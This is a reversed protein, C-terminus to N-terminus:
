RAVLRDPRQDNKLQPVSSENRLRSRRVSLFCPLYPPRPTWVPGPYDTKSRAQETLAYIGANVFEGKVERMTVVKYIYITVLLAGLTRM